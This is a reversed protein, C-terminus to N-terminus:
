MGGNSAVAHNCSVIRTTERMRQAVAEAALTEVGATYAHVHVLDAGADVAGRAANALEDPTHPIAPHEEPTRSGNLAAQLM